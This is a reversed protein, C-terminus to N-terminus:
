TGNLVHSFFCVWEVYDACQTNGGLFLLHESYINQRKLLIKVDRDGTVDQLTVVVCSAFVNCAHLLPSMRLLNAYSWPPTQSLFVRKNAILANTGM